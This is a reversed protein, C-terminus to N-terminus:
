IGPGGIRNGELPSGHVNIEGPTSWPTLLNDRRRPAKWRPSRGSGELIISVRVPEQKRVAGSWLASEIGFQPAVATLRVSDPALATGPDFVAPSVIRTPPYKTV